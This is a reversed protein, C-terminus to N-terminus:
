IVSLCNLNLDFWMHTVQLKGLLFYYSWTVIHRLLYNIMQQMKPVLLQSQVKFSFPFYFNM